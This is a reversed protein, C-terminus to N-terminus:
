VTACHRQFAPWVETALLEMSRRWMAGDDWDHGTALLAGFPGIRQRLAVLQELVRKPGGFIVQGRKIADVTLAADTSRDPDPNLMFLAARGQAMSHRFFGYYYSMGNGPDSMYDEAEADSRAVLVCRAVRWAAPDAARGAEDCGEAYKNWHGRLFRENFFNGSIPIFGRRGAVAGTSSDPTVLTLAIPPHPQQLPRPVKGVGFEPWVGNRLGIKWFEGDHEYPPDRSWLKLIIDIAEQTMRPRAQPDGLAFMELDSVLGGPGVGMILRGGSLHDFMAAQAAVIAPHTQPLNIVGTGLKIRSTRDVLTSLFMLPSTIRESWSTSHEGVYVEDYGLRDALVIAEQDERLVTGYDRDPHHFPMMFMGLKM